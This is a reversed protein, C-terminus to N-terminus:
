GMNGPIFTGCPETGFLGFKAGLSGLKVALGFKVGEPLGLGNGGPLGFKVGGTLGFGNGAPCFKLGLKLKAEGVGLKVAGLLGFANGDFLGLGNGGPNLGLGNGRFVLGM